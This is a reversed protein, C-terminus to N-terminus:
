NDDDERRENHRAQRRADQVIRAPHSVYPRGIYAEVIQESTPVPRSDDWLLQYEHLRRGPQKRRQVLHGGFKAKRFDRLRASVSAEGDGTYDAIVPLSYWAGSQMVCWVRVMQKNLPVTDVAPDFTAGDRSGELPLQPQDTM